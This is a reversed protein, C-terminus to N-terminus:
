TEGLKVRILPIEIEFFRNWERSRSNILVILKLDIEGDRFPDLKYVYSQTYLNM